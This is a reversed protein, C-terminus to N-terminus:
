LPYHRPHPRGGGVAQEAEVAMHLWSAFDTKAPPAPPREWSIYEELCSAGTDPAIGVHHTKKRRGRMGPQQTHIQVELFSLTVPLAAPWAGELELWAGELEM